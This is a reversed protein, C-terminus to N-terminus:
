RHIFASLHTMALVSAECLGRVNTMIAKYQDVTKCDCKKELAILSQCSCCSVSDSCALPKFFIKLKKQSQKKIVQIITFTTVSLSMTLM